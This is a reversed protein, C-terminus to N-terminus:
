FANKNALTQTSLIQLSMEFQWNILYPTCCDKSCRIARIKL